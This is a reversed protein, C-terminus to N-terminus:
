ALLIDYVASSLVQIVLLLDGLSSVPACQEKAYKFHGSGPLVGSNHMM